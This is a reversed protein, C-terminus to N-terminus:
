VEVTALGPTLGHLGVFGVLFHDLENRGGARLVHNSDAGGLFGFSAHGVQNKPLFQLSVRPRSIPVPDSGAFQASPATRSPM